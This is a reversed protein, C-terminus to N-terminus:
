IILMSNLQNINNIFSVKITIIFIQLPKIPKIFRILIQYHTLNSLSSPETSNNKQASLKLYAHFQHFCKNMEVKTTIKKKNAKVKISPIVIKLMTIITSFIKKGLSIKIMSIINLSRNHKNYLKITKHSREIKDIKLSPWSLKSLLNQRTLSLAESKIPFKLTKSTKQQYLM